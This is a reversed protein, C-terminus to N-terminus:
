AASSWVARPLHAAHHHRQAGVVDDGHRRSSRAGRARRRIRASAAHAPSAAAQPCGAPLAKRPSLTPIGHVSADGRFRWRRESRVVESLRDMERLCRSRRPPAPTLSATGDRKPGTWRLVPHTSRRRCRTPGSGPGSPHARRFEPTSGRWRPSPRPDPSAFSELRALEDVDVAVHLDCAPDRYATGGARCRRSSSRKRAAAADCAGGPDLPVAHTVWSALVELRCGGGIRQAAGASV